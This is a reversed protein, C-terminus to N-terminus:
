AVRGCFRNRFHAGNRVGNELPIFNFTRNNSEIYSLSEKNYRISDAISYLISSISASGEEHCPLFEEERPVSTMKDRSPRRQM